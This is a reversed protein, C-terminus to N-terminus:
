IEAEFLTFTKGPEPKRSVAKEWAPDDPILDLIEECAFLLARIHSNYREDFERDGTRYKSSDQILPFNIPIMIAQFFIQKVLAERSNRRAAALQWWAFILAVMPVITTSIESAEKWGV